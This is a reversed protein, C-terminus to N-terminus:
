VLLYRKLSLMLQDITDLDAHQAALHLLNAGKRDVADCAAGRDLLIQFSKRSNKIVALLIPTHGRIDWHSLSAGKDLLFIVTPTKDSNIAYFLATYNEKNTSDVDAGGQILSDIPSLDLPSRNGAYHIPENGYINRATVDAGAKILVKAAAPNVTLFAYSLPRQGRKMELMLVREQYSYNKFLKLMVEQPLGIFHLAEM